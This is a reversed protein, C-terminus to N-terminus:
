ALLVSFYLLTIMLIGHMFHWGRHGRVLRYVSAFSALFKKLLWAKPYM